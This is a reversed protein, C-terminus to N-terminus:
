LSLDVEHRENEPSLLMYSKEWVLHGNGGTWYDKLEPIGAGRDLSHHLAFYDM